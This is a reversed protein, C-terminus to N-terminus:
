SFASDRIKVDDLFSKPLLWVGAALCAEQIEYSHTETTVLISQKQIGRKIILDLGSDRDARFRQDILFLTDGVAVTEIIHELAALSGCTTVSTLPKLRQEWYALISPDDDAAIVRAFSRVPLDPLFWAAPKARPLQIRIRTGQELASQVTLEGQNLEVWEKARRLGLGSGTAKGYSGGDELLLPLLEPSIGKGNDSLTVAVSHESAELGVEVMHPTHPVRPREPRSEIANQVLNSFMRAFLQADVPSFHAADYASKKDFVFLVNNQAPIQMQKEILVNHIILPLFTVRPTDRDRLPSLTEKQLLDGAIQRIRQISQSLLQQRDSEPIESGKKSVIELASVPSKIDHAVQRALDSLAKSQLLEADRLTKEEILLQAREKAMDLEIQTPESSFMLHAIALLIPTFAIWAIWNRYQIDSLDLLGPTLIAFILVLALPLVRYKPAQSASIQPIHDRAFLTSLAITSVGLLWLSEFIQYSINIQYFKQYKIAWDGFVLTLIGSCLVIWFSSNTLFSMVSAAFFLFCSAGLSFLEVLRTLLPITQWRPDFLIPKSLWLGASLLWGASIWAGNSSMFRPNFWRIRLDFFSWIGRALAIFGTAYLASALFGLSGGPIPERLIYYKLMYSFDALALLVFAAPIILDKKSDAFPLLMPRRLLWMVAASMWLLLELSGSWVGPQMGLNSFVNQSEGWSSFLTLLLAFALLLYLGGSQDSRSPREYARAEFSLLRGRYVLNRLKGVLRFNGFAFFRRAVDNAVPATSYDTILRPEHKLVTELLQRGTGEGRHMDCVIIQELYRYHNLTSESLPEWESETKFALFRSRAVTLAFGREAWVYLRAKHRKFLSHLEEHSYLTYVFGKKRGDRAPGHQTKSQISIVWDLVARSPLSESTYIHIQQQM